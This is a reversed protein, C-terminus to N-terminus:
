GPRWSPSVRRGAARSRAHRSRSRDRVPAAGPVRGALIAAHLTDDQAERRDDGDDADTGEDRVEPDDVEDRLLHEAVDGEEHRRRRQEEGGHGLGVRVVHERAAQDRRDDPDRDGRRM